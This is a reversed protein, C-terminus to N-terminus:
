KTGFVFLCVFGPPFSRPDRTEPGAMAAVPVTIIVTALLSDQANHLLEKM